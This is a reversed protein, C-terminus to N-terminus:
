VHLMFLRNRYNIGNGIVGRIQLYAGEEIIKGEKTCRSYALHGDAWIGTNIFYGEKSTVGSVVYRRKIIKKEKLQSMKIQEKRDKSSIM